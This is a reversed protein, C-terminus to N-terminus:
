IVAGLGLIQMRFGEASRPLGPRPEAAFRGIDPWPQKPDRAVQQHVPM